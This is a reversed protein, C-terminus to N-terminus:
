AIAARQAVEQGMTSGCARSVASSVAEWSRKVVYAEELSGADLWPKRPMLARVRMGASACESIVRLAGPAGFLPCGIYFLDGRWGSKRAVRLAEAYADRGAEAGPDVAGASSRGPSRRRIARLLSSHVAPPILTYVSPDSGAVIGFAEALGERLAEALSASEIARVGPQDGRSFIATVKQQDAAHGSSLGLLVSLLDRAMEDASTPGLARGDFLVLSHRSGRDEFFEKVSLRGRRATAKWDIFRTSDWPEYERSWAYELGRGLRRGAAAAEGELPGEGLLSLAELMLPYFRPYVRVAIEAGITIERVWAGAPSRVEARIGGLRYDGYLEPRISLHLVPTGGEWSVGAVRFPANVRIGAVKEGGKGREKSGGEEGHLDAAEGLAGGSGLMSDIGPVGELSVSLRIEEGAVTSAKMRRPIAYYGANSRRRAALFDALLLVGAAAGAGGLIPDSAALGLVASAAGSVAFSLGRRTARAAPASTSAGKEMEAEPEPEPSPDM